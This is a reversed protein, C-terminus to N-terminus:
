KIELVREEKDPRDPELPDRDPVPAPGPKPARGRRTSLGSAAPLEV